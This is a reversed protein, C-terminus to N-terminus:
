IPLPSIVGGLVALILPAVGLAIFAPLICVGLPLMLAVGLEAARRQAEARARTRAVAAEGRLLAAPPVGADAAMALTRTTLLAASDDLDFRRMSARVLAAVEAAAAGGRMGLATLDLGLGPHPDRRMAGAVLRRSWFGGLVSLGVGVILCLWGLAQGFLAGITDVGLVAGLLLGIAPLALVIKATSSPGALATRVDRECSALDRLGAALGALSQALPAGSREALTWACALARWAPEAREALVETIPEGNAAQAAVEQVIAAHPEEPESYRALLRWGDNPTAGGSLLMALREATAAVGDATSVPDTRQTGRIRDLLGAAAGRVGDLM